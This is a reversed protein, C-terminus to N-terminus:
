PTGRVPPPPTYTIWVRPKEEDAPWEIRVTWNGYVGFADLQAGQSGSFTVRPVDGARQQHIMVMRDATYIRTNAVANHEVPPASSAAGVGAAYTGLMLVATTIAYAALHRINVTHDEM